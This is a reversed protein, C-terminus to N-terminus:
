DFLNEVQPINAMFEQTSSFPQGKLVAFWVIESLTPHAHVTNKLDDITLGHTVALTLEHILETAGKGVISAGLLVGDDSKYILKIRGEPTHEIVTKGNMIMPFIIVKIQDYREHAETETLGVSAIEPKTYVVRPAVKNNYPMSEPQMMNTTIVMSEYAATHALMLTPIVDGAAYIHPVDTQLYNNVQIFGKEVKIDTNELGLDDTNPQRGVSILVKDFSDVDTYSGNFTCIVKGEVIEAKEIITSPYISIERKSLLDQVMISTDVDENPIIRPAAEIVTVDSGYSKYISAFELGIVGGGVVLLKKPIVNNDLLEDSTCIYEGDIQIGSILRPRSGTAIIFQDGTVREKSGNPLTVEVEDNSVFRAHGFVIEASTHKQHMSGLQNVLMEKMKHIQVMNPEISPIEVGFEHAKKGSEIVEAVKVLHKTPMCGKNVCVGGFSSPNKEILCVKKDSQSLFTCVEIGAPGSGLVVVDFKKM